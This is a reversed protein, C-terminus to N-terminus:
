EDGLDSKQSDNSLSIPRLKNSQQKGLVLKTAELLCPKILYEGITHPKKTQAIRLAIRYSVELAAKNQCAFHGTYDIRGAKLSAPNREFYDVSKGVLNSHCSEFHIKLKSPKMSEHSLVKACVICQPKAVSNQVISTFGMELFAERYTRKKTSM